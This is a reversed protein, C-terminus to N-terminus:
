FHQYGRMPVSHRNGSVDRVRLGKELEIQGIRTLSCPLNAFQSLRQEHVLPLTFCLEYDDGAALVYDYRAAWPPSSDGFLNRPLSHDRCNKLAASLPLKGLEICAGVGSCELIHGLDACLGDSIDICSSAVGRLQPGILVRPAPRNLRDTFFEVASHSLDVRGEASLLGVGADGLTGTVYIADGAQAGSRRLATGAPVFGHAQITITLPGRTTDGGVLQVNHERALSFMGECFEALWDADNEPLAIALTFWAPTAGMAALDSLNVALAKYGVDRPATTLPFHVGAVLTDITVVLEHGAPVTLIAGDDGIGLVVDARRVLGRNFFREILEFESYAM